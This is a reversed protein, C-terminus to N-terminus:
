KWNGRRTSQEILFASVVPALNFPVHGVVRGCKLFIAVACKDEPNGPERIILIISFLDQCLAVGRYPGFHLEGITAAISPNWQLQSLLFVVSCIFVLVGTAYCAHSPRCLLLM